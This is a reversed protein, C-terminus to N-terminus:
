LYINQSFLSLHLLFYAMKWDNWSHSIMEKVLIRSKIANEDFVANYDYEFVNMIELLKLCLIVFHLMRLNDCAIFRRCVCPGIFCDIRWSLSPTHKGVCVCMLLYCSFYQYQVFLPRIDKQFIDYCVNCRPPRRCYSAMVTSKHDNKLGNAQPSPFTIGRFSFPPHRRRECAPALVFAASPTDVM